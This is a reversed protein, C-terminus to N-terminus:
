ANDKAEKEQLDFIKNQLDIAVCGNEWKDQCDNCGILNCTNLIVSKLQQEYYDKMM